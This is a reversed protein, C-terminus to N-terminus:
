GYEDEYSRSTPSYRHDRGFPEPQFPRKTPWGEADDRDYWERKQREWDNKDPDFSYDEPLEGSTPNEIDSQAPTKHQFGNASNDIDVAGKSISKLHAKLQAAFVPKPPTAAMRTTDEDFSWEDNLDDSPGSREHLRPDAKQILQTAGFPDDSLFGVEFGGDPNILFSHLERQAKPAFNVDGYAMEAHHPAGYPGDTVWTKVSGDPYVLGKGYQRPNWQLDHQAM